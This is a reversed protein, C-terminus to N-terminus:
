PCVGTNLTITFTVPSGTGNIMEYRITTDFLLNINLCSPFVTMDGVDALSSCSDNRYATVQITGMALATVSLSYHGSACTGFTIWGVQGAPITFHYTTGVVGLGATACTLGPVPGSPHLTSVATIGIIGSQAGPGATRKALFALSPNTLVPPTKAASFAVVPSFTKVGTGIASFAVIGTLRTLISNRTVDVEILTTGLGAPFLKRKATLAFTARRDADTIVHTIAKFGITGAASPALVRKANFGLPGSLGLPHRVAHVAFRGQRRLRRSANV